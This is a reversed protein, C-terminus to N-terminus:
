DCQLGETKLKLKLIRVKLGLQEQQEQQISREVFSRASIETGDNAPISVASVDYVKEIKEIKRIHVVQGHEEIREHSQQAITFAWSMRDILGATIEEYLDKAATSKSLDAYVFLGKEDAEIGLTNNRQRALVKGTHDYQMIVDSMDTGQLAGPAIEEYFKHSRGIGEEKYEWLLYRTFTTAYGEVYYNSNLRKTTNEAAPM